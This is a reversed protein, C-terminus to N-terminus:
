NKNYSIKGNIVKEFYNLNKTYCSRNCPGCIPILNDLILQGGQSEPVIHGCQHDDNYIIRHCVYCNGETTKGIKELWVQRKLAKPITKKVYKKTTISTSILTTSINIKNENKDISNSINIKYDNKNSEIHSINDSIKYNIIKNNLITVNYNDDLQCLLKAIEINNNLCVSKFAKHLDFSLDIYHNSEFYLWKVIDIQNNQCNEIFLRNIDSEDLFSKNQKYYSKLEELNEIKYNM